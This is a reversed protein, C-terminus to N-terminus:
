GPSSFCRLQTRARKIPLFGWGIFSVAEGVTLLICGGVFLKPNGQPLRDQFHEISGDQLMQWPNELDPIEESTEQWVRASAM